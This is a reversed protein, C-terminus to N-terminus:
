ASWSHSAYAADAQASFPGNWDNATVPAIVAAFAAGGSTRSASWGDALTSLLAEVEALPGDQQQFNAATLRTRMYHYLRELDRSISGGAGHDLSGQLESIAAITRSVARARAVIDHAALAQRAERVMELAHEYVICVLEMPDAALVRSELYADKLMATKVEGKDTKSSL